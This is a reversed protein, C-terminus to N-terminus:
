SIWAMVQERIIWRDNEKELLVYLGIGALYHSQVGIYVLAQTRGQNFGVRSLEMLGPSGPYRRYFEDWGAGPEGFIEERERESIRVVPVSLTLRDNLLYSLANRQRFGDLTEPQLAPMNEVIYDATQDDGGSLSPATQEEMVYREASGHLQELLAAYVGAEESEVDVPAPTAPITCGILLILILLLVRQM